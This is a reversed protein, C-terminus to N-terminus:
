EGVGDPRTVVRVEAVIRPVQPHHGAQEGAAGARPARLPFLPLWRMVGEQVPVRRPPLRRRPRDVRAGRPRVFLSWFYRKETPQGYCDYKLFSSEWSDTESGELIEM